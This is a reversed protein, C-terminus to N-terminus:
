PTEDPTFKIPCTINVRLITVQMVSKKAYPGTGTIETVTKGGCLEDGCFGVVIILLDLNPHDATNYLFVPSERAQGVMKEVFFTQRGFPQIYGWLVSEVYRSIMNGIAIRPVNYAHVLFKYGSKTYTKPNGWGSYVGNPCVITFDSPALTVDYIRRGLNPPYYTNPTIKANFQIPCKIEVHIIKLKMIAHEATPVSQITEMDAKGGCLQNGCYGIVALWIGLYFSDGIAKGVMQEAKYSERGVPQIYGWLVTQTLNFHLRM